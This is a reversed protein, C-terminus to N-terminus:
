PVEAGAVELDSQRLGLIQLPRLRQDFEAITRGSHRFFRLPPPKQGPEKGSSRGRNRRSWSIGMARCSPGVVILARYMAKDCLNHACAVAQDDRAILIEQRGKGVENIRNTPDPIPGCAANTQHEARVGIGTPLNSGTSTRNGFFRPGEKKARLAKGDTIQSIKTRHQRDFGYFAARDGVPRQGQHLASPQQGDPRGHQMCLKHDSVAM